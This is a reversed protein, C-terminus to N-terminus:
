VSFATSIRGRVRVAGPKCTGVPIGGAREPYPCSRAGRAMVLSIWGHVDNAVGVAGEHDGHLRCTAVLGLVGDCRLPGPLRSSRRVEGGRPDQVRAFAAVVLRERLPVQLLVGITLGGHRGHAPALLGHGEDVRHGGRGTVGHRRGDIREIVGLCTALRQAVHEHAADVGDLVKGRLHGLGLAALRQGRM